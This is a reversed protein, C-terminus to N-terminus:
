KAVVKGTKENWADKWRSDLDGAVYEDFEETTIEAFGVPKVLYLKREFEIVDGVSVSPKGAVPQFDNQGYMFIAELTELDSAVVEGRPVDVFRTGWSLASSTLFVRFAITESTM